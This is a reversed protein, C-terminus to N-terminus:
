KKLYFRWLKKAWIPGAYDIGIRPSTAIEKRRPRNDCDEIWLRKSKTIDKGYFSKDFHFARCFRGPGTGEKDKLNLVPEVARILICEPKGAKGTSINFQWYMGYVLYIYVHSGIMFEAINRKTMKGGFAHSAKDEPGIYTEIEVIRGIIKKNRYHWIIHKDM